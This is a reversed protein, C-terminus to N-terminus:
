GGDVVRFSNRGLAARTPRLQVPDPSQNAGGSPPTDQPVTWEVHLSRTGCSPCVLKSPLRELPFGHGFAAVLTRIDLAVPGPCSKATKLAEHRRGCLLV